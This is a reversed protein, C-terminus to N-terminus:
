SRRALRNWLDTVAVGLEVAFRMDGKGLRRVSRELAELDGDSIHERSLISQKINTRLRESMKNNELYNCMQTVSMGSTEKLLARDRRHALVTRALWFGVALLPVALGLLWFTGKMQASLREDQANFQRRKAQGAVYLREAEQAVVVIAPPSPTRGTAPDALRGTARARNLGDLARGLDVAQEKLRRQAFFARFGALPGDEPLAVPAQAVLRRLRAFEASSYTPPGESLPILYPDGIVLRELALDALPRDSATKLADCNDANATSAREYLRTLRERERQYDADSSREFNQLAAVAACGSNERSAAVVPAPPPPAGAGSDASGRLLSILATVGLLLGAGGVVVISWLAVQGAAARGAQVLRPGSEHIFDQSVRPLELAGRGLSHSTRAVGGVFLAVLILPLASFRSAKAPSRYWQLVRLVLWGGVLFSLALREAFRFDSGASVAARGVVWDALAVLLWVMAAEVVLIGAFLVVWHFGLGARWATKPRVMLISPERFAKILATLAAHAPMRLGALRAVGSVLKWSHLLMQPPQGSEKQSVRELVDNAMTIPPVDLSAVFDIGNIITLESVLDPGESAGPSVSARVRGLHHMLRPLLVGLLARFRDGRYAFATAEAAATINDRWTFVSKSDQPELRQIFEELGFCREGEIAATLNLVPTMWPSQSIPQLLPWRDRVYTAAYYEALRRHRFQIYSVGDSREVYVLRLLHAAVLGRAFLLMALRGTRDGFLTSAAREIESALSEYWASTELRGEHAIVSFAKMIDEAPTSPRAAALAGFIRFDNEDLYGANVERNLETDDLDAGSSLRNLLTAINKWPGSEGPVAPATVADAFSWALAGSIPARGYLAEEEQAITMHYALHSLFIAASRNLSRRLAEQTVSPRGSSPGLVAHQRDIERALYREILFEFDITKDLPEPPRKRFYELLMSLFYPNRRFLDVSSLSKSNRRLAREVYDRDAPALNYNRVMNQCFRAREEETQLGRLPISIGDSFLGIDDGFRCSLFFRRVRHLESDLETAIVRKLELQIREYESRQAIEDLGDFIIVFDYANWHAEIFRTVWSYPSGPDAGFYHVLLHKLPSPSDNAARLVELKLDSAFVVLPVLSHRGQELGQLLSAHIEQTLVSKGAGPEGTIVVVSNSFNPQLFRTRRRGLFRAIERRAGRPVSYTADGFHVKAPSSAAGATALHAPLSTGDAIRQRQMGLGEFLAEKNHLPLVANGVKPWWKRQAADVLRTLLWACGYFFAALFVSLVGLVQVLNAVDGYKWGRIEIHAVTTPEVLYILGIVLATLVLSSLILFMQERFAETRM